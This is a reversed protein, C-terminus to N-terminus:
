SKVPETDSSDKSTNDHTDRSNKADYEDSLMSPCMEQVGCQECVIHVLDSSSLKLGEDECLQYLKKVHVCIM